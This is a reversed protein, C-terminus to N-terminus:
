DLAGFGAFGGMDGGALDPPGPGLGAAARPDAYGRRRYEDVLIATDLRDCLDRAPGCHLHSTIRELASRGRRAAAGPCELGRSSPCRLGCTTPTLCVHTGPNSGEPAAARATM